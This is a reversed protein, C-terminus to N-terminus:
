ARAFPNRVTVGEYVQGDRLDESWIVECGLDCASSVILADWFSIHHREQIDIARLVDSVRPSHVPWVYYKEVIERALSRPLPSATKSTVVVFFEQLVQISLCGKRSYWLDELPKAAIERKKGASLDHAYVLINTDVFQLGSDKRESM